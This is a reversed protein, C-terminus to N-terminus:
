NDPYRGRHGAAAVSDSGATRDVADRHAYRQAANMAEAELLRRRSLHMRPDLNADSISKTETSRSSQSICVGRGYRFDAVVDVVFAKEDPSVLRWAGKKKSSRLSKGRAVTKGLVMIRAAV